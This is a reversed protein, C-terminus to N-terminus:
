VEPQECVLVWVKALVCMFPPKGERERERGGGERGGDKEGEMEGGGERREGRERERWHMQSKGEHESQSDKLSVTLTALQRLQQELHEEILRTPNEAEGERQVQAPQEDQEQGRRGEDVTTTKTSKNNKLEM